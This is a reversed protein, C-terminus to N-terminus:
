MSLQAIPILPTLFQRSIFRLTRSDEIIDALPPSVAYYVDVLFRGLKNKMMVTDRYDRLIQIERAMPTGFAATAIFCGGTPEVDELHTACQLELTDGDSEITVIGLKTGASNYTHTIDSSNNGNFEGNNFRQVDDDDDNDQSGLGDTGSWSFTTTAATTTGIDGDARWTVDRQITFSPSDVTCQGDIREDEPKNVNNPLVARCTLSVSQDGSTIELNAVKEGGTTYEHQVSRTDDSLGDTGSWNYEFQETGGDGEATWRITTEGDNGPNVDVECSGRIPPAEVEVSNRCNVTTSPTTTGQGQTSTAMESSTATVSATKTGESNYSIDQTQNNGSFDESGSWEYDYPLNGGVIYAKWEISQDIQTNTTDAECTGSMAPINMDSIAEQLQPFTREAILRHGENNPHIPDDLRDPNGIIGQLVNPVYYVDTDDAIEEYDDEYDFQFVEGHSGLFVVKVNEQQLETIITRLNEVTEDQPVNNLIDNGGVHLIVIDPNHTLVDEDLRNLVDETTDGGSGENIIDIDTWQSLISVFGQNNSAGAGNVVSDGVAVITLDQPTEQAHAPLISTSLM